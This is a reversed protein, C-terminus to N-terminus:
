EAMPKKCHLPRSKFRNSFYCVIAFLLRPAFTTGSKASLAQYAQLERRGEGSLRKVVFREM